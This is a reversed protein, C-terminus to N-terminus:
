KGATRLRMSNGVVSLSSLSMAASALAPTIFGVAALPISLVNYLFALVLNQRVARVTAHSLRRARLIGGVDGHIVVVDASEIAVDTGTAMAIGVDAQALAPADNIGDGAMIVTRGERQLRRIVEHKEQPLVEAIVEDIGLQRAVDHATAKGDGTLMIVRLGDSKLQRVAEASTSRVPDTVMLRGIFKGDAAVLLLTGSAAPSRPVAVGRDRMLAENGVVVDHEEIRGVIGKGTFSEFSAASPLTMHREDASQLVAHALPHESGRELAAALRLVDQEGFGEVPEIASLRPKGETLTGTKDLVLTDARSLAELSEANRVLLGLRAGRGMSVAIAMPTALGLACPCAIMLVAVANIWGHALRADKGFIAWGAFTLLAVTLVAPVFYAAVRDVLDQVPARSRQADSVLRVIQALMTDSGVHEARMVFTGTTNLTGGIVKRGAAKQVPMPEGSIMSEDVASTGNVVVGDVPIEDGPLVRLRDGVSVLELPVDAERGDPGVLRATTPALELLERLAANTRRRARMELVQGLLVLVIIVAASEFYPEVQGHMRFGEPFIGPAMLTVISYLYAAAVGLGILTFMNLSRNVLSDFARRWIPWGPYVVVATALIAQVPLNWAPLTGGWVMPLMALVIVPAALVLGVWFRVEMDRLLPDPGEHLTVLRPELAMGCRPCSGPRDSLVDPDMPCFYEVAEGPKHEAPETGMGVPGSALYKRPDARFRELCHTSCFYYTTGEFPWTGAARHPDVRMGCVPDIAQGEGASPQVLGLSLSKHEAPM